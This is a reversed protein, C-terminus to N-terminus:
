PFPDTPALAGRRPDSRTRGHRRNRAFLSEWAEHENPALHRYWNRTTLRYIQKATGHLEFLITNGRRSRLLDGLLQTRAGRPQRLRRRRAGYVTYWAGAGAFETEGPRPPDDGLAAPALSQSLSLLVDTIAIDLHEDGGTNGCRARVSLAGAVSFAALLGGAM